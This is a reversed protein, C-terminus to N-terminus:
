HDDACLADLTKSFVYYCIVALPLWSLIVVGVNLHQIFLGGFWILVSGVCFAAFLAIAARALITFFCMCFFVALIILIIM